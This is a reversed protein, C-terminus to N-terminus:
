MVQKIYTVSRKYSIKNHLIGFISWIAYCLSIFVNELIAMALSTKYKLGDVEDGGLVCM